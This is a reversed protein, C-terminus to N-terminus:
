PVEGAVRRWPGTLTGFDAESILDAALLATAADSIGRKVPYGAPWSARTAVDWALDRVTKWDRGHGAAAQQAATLAAPGPSYDAHWAQDWDRGLAGSASVDLGAARALLAAVPAPVAAM